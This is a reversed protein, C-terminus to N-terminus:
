LLYENTDSPHIWKADEPVELFFQGDFTGSPDGTMMYYYQHQYGSLSPLNATSWGWRGTDTIQYCGSSALSVSSNQADVVDWVQITVGSISADFTGILQPYHDSTRLFWDMARGEDGSSSPLGAIFLPISDIIDPPPAFIALPISSQTSRSGQILLDGSSFIEEYGGIFLNDSATIQETGYIFLDFYATDPVQGIMSTGHGSDSEDRWVVVFKNDDLIETRIYYPFGIGPSDKVQSAEGFSISTGFVTGVRTKIIDGDNTDMYTVIFENDNVRSVAMQDDMGNSAFETETGFTLTTGSITGIIATGHNSDSTDRYVVVFRTSDLMTAAIFEAGGSSFNYESGYSINTGSISGVKAKGQPAVVDYLIVFGSAVHSVIDLYNVNIADSFSVGSGFTIVNGSVNGVKVFSDPSGALITPDEWAVVFGSTDLAAAAGITIGAATDQYYYGAGFGITTGSVDAVKAQGRHATAYNGYTVVYKTSTLTAISTNQGAPTAIFEYDSGYSIVTGSVTGIRSTGHHSDPVDRYAVAFGSSSPLGLALDAAIGTSLFEYESGFIINAM